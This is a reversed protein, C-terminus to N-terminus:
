PYNSNSCGPGVTNHPFPLEVDFDCDARQTPWTADKPISTAIKFSLLFDWDRDAPGGPGLNEIQIRAGNPLHIEEVTTQGSTDPFTEIRLVPDGNTSVNLIAVSAGNDDVGASFHGKADFYAAVLEPRNGNVIEPSLPPLDPAFDTLRPIGKFFSDDYFVGTDLANATIRVGELRMGKEKPTAPYRLWAHHGHISKGNIVDDKAANILVVRHETAGSTHERLHSCVGVFYVTLKGM